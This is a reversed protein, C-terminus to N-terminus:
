TADRLSKVFLDFDEFREIPPLDTIKELGFSRLFLETTGYIIPRGIRELRGKEEVLGRDILHSLASDSNVGRVEEIIAKTVPQEYAVVALVELSSPTLGKTKSQSMLTELVDHHEPKTVLQVKTNIRVLHFGRSPAAYDEELEGIIGRVEEESRELARAIRYLSLPEGYAFLVAEVAAKLQQSM